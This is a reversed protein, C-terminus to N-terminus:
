DLGLTAKFLDFASWRFGSNKRPISESFSATLPLVIVLLSLMTTNEIPNHSIIYHILSFSKNEL